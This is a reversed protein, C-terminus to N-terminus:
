NASVTVSNYFIRGTDYERRVEELLFEVDRPVIKQQRIRGNVRLVVPKDMDVLKDHLFVTLRDVKRTKINVVNGPLIEADVRSLQQEVQNEARRLMEEKSLPGDSKVDIHAAPQWEAGHVKDVRVWWARGHAVRHVVKVIKKAYNDRTAGLVFDLAHDSEDPYSGHGRGELQRYEVPCGLKKLRDTADTNIQPQDHDPTGQMVWLHTQFLNALLLYRTFLWGELIPVGSEVIGGAFRDTRTLISDWVAHGGMSSGALYVRDSDIHYLHRAANLASVPVSREIEQAAYGHDKGFGKGTKPDVRDVATPAIVIMNRPTAYPLWRNLFAAGTGGMGHMLLLAPYPKRADYGPPVYFTCDTQAGDFEVTIKRTFTGADQPKYFVGRRVADEVQAPTIDKRDKLTKLVAARDTDTPADFFSTVLSDVTDVPQAHLPPGAPLLIGLLVLAFFRLPSRVARRRPSFRACLVSGRPFGAASWPARV